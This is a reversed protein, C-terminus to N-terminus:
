NIKGGTPITTNTCEDLAGGEFMARLFVEAEPMGAILADGHRGNEVRVYTIKTGQACYKKVLADTDEIPVMIEDKTGQWVFLPAIPAGHFGMTGISNLLTAFDYM